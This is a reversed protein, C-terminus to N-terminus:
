SVEERAALARLGRPRFTVAVKGRAGDYHVREILGQVVAAKDEPSLADWAPQRIVDLPTATATGEAGGPPDEVALDTPLEAAMERLRDPDNALARVQAIVLREIASASLSKSPCRQWGQRQAQSCVYYRYRRGARGVVCTPSMRCNCPVCRLLGQLLAASRVRVPDRRGHRCLLAQVREWVDREVIAAHEGQHVENGYRVKGVYAVRTLLHYLNTRTFRQGGRARGKRTTWAKTRWGRRELEEVVPLLAQHQLYLEFIAQVRVAEAENVVLKSGRPDVDYGLLPM